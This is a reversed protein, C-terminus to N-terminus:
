WKIKFTCSDGGKRRTPKTTDLTVVAEPQFKKAMGTIIGEDFESPYPNECILIAEKKGPTLELKFSGIGSLIIGTAPDFMVKGNKRHNMHYAINLSELGKEISDMGPPFMAKEIIKKGVNTLTRLGIKEKIANYFTLSQDMPYWNDPIIEYIGKSNKTGIKNEQFINEAFTQLNGLAEYLSLFGRGFVEIDKLDYTKM